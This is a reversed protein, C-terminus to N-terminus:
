ELACVKLINPVDNPPVLGALSKSNVIDPILEIVGPAMSVTVDDPVADELVAAYLKSPIVQVDLVNGDLAFQLSM